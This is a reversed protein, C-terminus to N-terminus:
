DKYNEIPYADQHKKLHADLEASQEKLNWPEYSYVDKFMTRYDPHPTDNVETALKKCEENVEKSIRAISDTYSTLWGKKEMYKGLRIVPDGIADLFPQLKKMVEKTRYMASSDSTSHDGGRYSYTELMVPGKREMIMKRAERAAYVLAIPDCGDVKLAPIGYGIGRPAVGDGAYQDEIPTSIAYCNNRVVFLTQSGLTAAFNLAAHFDGQSAAGEGLFCCAIKDEKQTRFSYGLGAAHPIKSGIPASVPLVGLKPNAYHFVLAKGKVYDKNSGKVHHMMEANTFGRWLMIGQERYQLVVPDDNNIGCGIGPGIGEEYLTSMYFTIRGQRHMNLLIKDTERHTIMLDLIKTATPKDLIEYKPDLINGELDM